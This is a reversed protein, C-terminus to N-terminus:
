LLGHRSLPGRLKRCLSAALLIKIVDGPLFPVVCYLLSTWLDMGTVVMFWITGFLYCAAVGIAMSLCLGWFSRLRGSLAGVIAAAAIYGIIYGGTKGFLIGPGGTLGAFVPAGIGGLLLYIVMSIAGNKAGLLGGALHVALLALNIPVLPLPIQIQSCVATLAAFLACLLLQRTRSRGATTTRTTEM